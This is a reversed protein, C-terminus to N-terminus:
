DNVEKVQSGRADVALQILKGRHRVYFEFALAPYTVKEAATIVADPYKARVAQQVPGPVEALEISEELAVTRGDPSFVGKRTIRGEVATMEYATTRHREVEKTCVTPVPTPYARAFAAKVIPPVAECAVKQEEGRASAM